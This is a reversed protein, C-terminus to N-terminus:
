PGEFTSFLWNGIEAKKLQGFALLRISYFKKNIELRLKILFPLM